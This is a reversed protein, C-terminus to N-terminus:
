SFNDCLRELIHIESVSRAGRPNVRLVSERGAEKFGHQTSVGPRGGPVVEIVQMAM